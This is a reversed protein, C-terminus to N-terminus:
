RGPTANLTTLTKQYHEKCYGKLGEAQYVAYGGHEDCGAVDCGTPWKSGRAEGRVQKGNGTKYLGPPVDGDCYKYARLYNEKAYDSRHEGSRRRGGSEMRRAFSLIIEKLAPQRNKSEKFTM